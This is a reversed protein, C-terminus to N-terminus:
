PFTALKKEDFSNMDTIVTDSSNEQHSAGQHIAGEEKAIKEMFMRECLEWWLWKWTASM